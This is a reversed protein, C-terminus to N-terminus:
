RAPASQSPWLAKPTEHLRELAEPVFTDDHGVFHVYEGPAHWTGLNHPTGPWGSNPQTHM